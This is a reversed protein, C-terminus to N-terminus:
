FARVITLIVERRTRAAVRRVGVSAIAIISVYAPVLLKTAFKVSSGLFLGFVLSFVLSFVM